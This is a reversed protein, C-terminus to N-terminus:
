EEPPNHPDTELDPKDKAEKNIEEEDEEMLFDYFDEFLMYYAIGVDEIAFYEPIIDHIENALKIIRSWRENTMEDSTEDIMSHVMFHM